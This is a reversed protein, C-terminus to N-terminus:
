KNRKVPKDKWVFTIEVNKTAGAEKCYKLAIEQAENSTEVAVAAGVVPIGDDTEGEAIAGFGSDETSVLEQCNTGGSEHCYDFARDQAEVITKAQYSFGYNATEKCFYVSSAAFANQIFIIGSFLIFSFTLVSKSLKM